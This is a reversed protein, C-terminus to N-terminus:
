QEGENEYSDIEKVFANYHKISKICLDKFGVPTMGLRAAEMLFVRGMFDDGCDLQTSKQFEGMAQFIGCAGALKAVALQGLLGKTDADATAATTWGIVVLFVIIIQKAM